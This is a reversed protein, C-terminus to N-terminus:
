SKAEEFLNYLSSALKDIQQSIIPDTGGILEQAALFQSVNCVAGAAVEQEVQSYHESIFKELWYM